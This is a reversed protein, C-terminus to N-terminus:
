SQTLFLLSAAGAIRHAMKSTTQQNGPTMCCSQISTLTRMCCTVVLLPQLQQPLPSFSANHYPRAITPRRSKHAALAGLQQTIQHCRRRRVSLAARMGDTSPPGLQLSHQQGCLCVCVQSRQSGSNRLSKSSLKRKQLSLPAHVTRNPPAQIAVRMYLNTQCLCVCCPHAKGVHKWTPATEGLYSRLRPPECHRSQRPSHRDALISSIRAM